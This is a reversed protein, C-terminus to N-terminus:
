LVQDFVGMKFGNWKSLADAVSANTREAAENQASCLM